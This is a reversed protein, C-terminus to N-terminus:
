NDDDDGEGESKKIKISGVIATTPAANPAANMQNDYVLAGTAENWVRIRVKDVNGGGIAKGDIATVEFAYTGHRNITGLGRLQAKAGTVVLWQYSTSEFELGATKFSFDLDGKPVNSKKQYKAEFEFELKGTLAHNAEYAGRPSTFWGAGSLSPGDPDYVVVPQAATASGFASTTGRTRTVKVKVFYLGVASYTHTASVSGAANPAPATTNGPSIQGDGWDVTASYLDGSAQGADTFSASMTSATNGGVAIPTAPTMLVSTVTPGGAVAFATGTLQAISPSTTTNVTVTISNTVPNYSQNSALQWSTGTWWYIATGGSDAYVFTLSDFTSGTAVRVDFFQGTSSFTNSAGAGPVPGIPDGAYQAVTLGGGGTGGSTAAAASVTGGMPSTAAASATGTSPDAIGTSAATVAATTDTVFFTQANSSGGGGGSLPPNVVRIEFTGSAALLSAPVTGRVETDSIFTTALPTTTATDPDLWQITANSVFGAGYAVLVLSSSGKQASEPALSSLTPVPNINSGVVLSAEAASGLISATGIFSAFVTYAGNATANFTGTAHGNTLALPGITGVTTAGSKITFTVSSSQNLVITAPSNATVNARLNVLGPGALTYNSSTTSSSAQNITLTSNVFNLNYNTSTLGAPTISYTGVPSSQTASSTASLTGALSTPTDGNLFGMFSVTFTPDPAGYFRTKHDAIVSLPAKAM